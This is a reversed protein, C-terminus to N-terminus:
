NKNKIKKPTPKFFLDITNTVNEVANKIENQMYAKIIERKFNEIRDVQEAPEGKKFENILNEMQELEEQITPRPLGLADLFDYYVKGWYKLEAVIREFKKAYDSKDANSTTEMWQFYRTKAILQLNRECRSLQAAPPPSKFPNPNQYRLIIRKVLFSFEFKPRELSDLGFELEVRNTFRIVAEPTLQRFDRFQLQRVLVFRDVGEPDNTGFIIFFWVSFFWSLIVIIIPVVFFCINGFINGIIKLM